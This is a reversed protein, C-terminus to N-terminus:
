RAHWVLFPAVFRLDAQALMVVISLFYVVVYVLVDTLKMVTERVALATQMVKTAVRGAFEDSFFALSQGLLYRHMQWRGIMPYNGLLTQHIILSQLVVALPLLILLFAGMWFLRNGERVLFGDREAEALWDVLSGLFGFLAVEGIAIIAALVAMVVLWGIVPQTYTWCFGSLSQPPRGPAATPNPDIRSEFFRFM